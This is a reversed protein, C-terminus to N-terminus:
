IFKFLIKILRVKFYDQYSSNALVIPRVSQSLALDNISDIGKISEAIVLDVGYFANIVINILSIMLVIIYNSTKIICSKNKFTSGLNKTTSKNLHYFSLFM